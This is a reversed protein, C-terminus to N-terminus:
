GNLRQWIMTEERVTQTDQRIARFAVRYNRNADIEEVVAAEVDPNRKIRLPPMTFGKGKILGLHHTIAYKVTM